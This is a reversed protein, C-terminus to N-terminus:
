TVLEWKACKASIGQLSREFIARADKGVETDIQVESTALMDRPTSSEVTRTSQYSVMVSDAPGEEDSDDQIQQRM